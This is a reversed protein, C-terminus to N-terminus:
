NHRPYCTIYYAISKYEILLHTQKSGGLITALQLPSPHNRCNRKSLYKVVVEFRREGM